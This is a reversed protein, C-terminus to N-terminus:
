RSSVVDKAADPDKHKMESWWLEYAADLNKAVQVLVDEYFEAISFSVQM